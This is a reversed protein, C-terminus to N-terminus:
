IISILYGIIAMTAIPPLAAMANRKDQNIFLLHTLFFGFLTFIAVLLSDKLSHAVVSSILILPLGIDGSGLIMFQEKRASVQVQAEDRNSLFGKFESPIIFGLTAGSQIMTQAMKVMHRTKYVAIIDYFSLIALLFVSIKPTLSLGLLSSIGAIGLIIGINHMLVNKVFIFVLIFLISLLLALNLDSFTGFVSQTGVFIVLYLFFRLFFRSFRKHKLSFIFLLVIVGIFILDDWNFKFGPVQNVLLSSKYRYASFIGIALTALFLLLEKLFLNPKLKM